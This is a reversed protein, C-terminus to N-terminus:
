IASREYSYRQKLYSKLTERPQLPNIRGYIYYTMSAWRAASM